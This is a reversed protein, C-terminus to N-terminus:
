PTIEFVQIRADFNATYPRNHLIEVKVNDGPQLVLGNDQGTVFDFTVNFAGAYYTRLVSQTAGNISLTYTGINEGSAVSRQLIAIKNMPVTYQVITTTAGSVVAAATGFTNKVTNTNSTSPLINVNISGDPNVNLVDGENDTIKVDGVSVTGDFAIPLPNNEDYFNGYKDIFTTRIAVTPEQEYVAQLIDQPAITVRDQSDQYVFAGLAVTYGTLNTRDNINKGIAGVLMQTKSLVRKCELLLNPKSPCVIAVSAKVKFGATDAVQIQGQPGGDAIFLQPPVSLWQKEFM